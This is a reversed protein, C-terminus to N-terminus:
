LPIRQIPVNESTRLGSTSVGKYSPHGYSSSPPHDPCCRAYGAISGQPPTDCAFMSPIITTSGEERGTAPCARDLVVYSGLATALGSWVLLRFSYRRLSPGDMFRVVVFRSSIKECGRLEILLGDWVNLM